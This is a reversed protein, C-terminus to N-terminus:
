IEESLEREKKDLKEINSLLNENNKAYPTFTISIPSARFDSDRSM